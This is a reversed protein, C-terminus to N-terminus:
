SLEHHMREVGALDRRTLCVCDAQNQYVGRPSGAWRASASPRSLWGEKEDPAAEGLLAALGVTQAHGGYPDSLVCLDGSRWRRPPGM